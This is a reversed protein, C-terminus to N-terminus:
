KKWDYETKGCGCRIKNNVTDYNKMSVKSKKCDKDQCVFIKKLNQVDAWFAKLDGLKPNFPNDHSLLNRLISSSAVRDIILVQSKLDEGASKNIKSKLENLLEDSMRKENKDNFRFKVQV